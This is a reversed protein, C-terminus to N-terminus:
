ACNSRSLLDIIVSCKREPGRASAMSRASIKV